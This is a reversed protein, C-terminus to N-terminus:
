SNEEYVKLKAYLTTPSIELARAAHTKNGDHEELVSLIHQREAEALTSGPHSRSPLEKKAVLDAPLESVDITDADVLVALREVVNRLERVNGPWPYAELARLAGETFQQADNAARRLFAVALPEIQHRRERLSPVVVELVNLRFFLDERFTKQDVEARLDRNTAALFRAEARRPRQEGVRRFEGSELLRLLKAQLAPELEGIEDLFLSGGRAAEVLGVRTTHAGTFAGRRHGFLESEILTPQLAACDVVLFPGEARGSHRHIARAAVEKGAGTEGTILVPLDSAAVKRLLREFDDDEPRSELDIAGAPGSLLRRLGRNEFQLAFSAAAKEVVAQLEDLRCPKELFDFAGAKMTQVAVDVSGHATLVVVEPPDPLRKLEELVEQGTTDPLGLDLLVVEAGKRASRLGAAGTACSSVEHGAATLEEQLLESVAADDEILVIVSM